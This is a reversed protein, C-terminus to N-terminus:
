VSPNQTVHSYSDMVSVMGQALLNENQLLFPERSATCSINLPLELFSAFAKDSRSQRLCSVRAEDRAIVNDGRVTRWALEGRAICIKNLKTIKNVSPTVRWTDDGGDGDDDYDAAAWSSGVGGYNKDNIKNDEIHIQRKYIKTYCHAVRFPVLAVIASVYNLKHRHAVM